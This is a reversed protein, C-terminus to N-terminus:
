KKRNGWIICDKLLYSVSVKNNNLEFTANGLNANDNFTVYGGDVLLMYPKGLEYILNGCYDTRLTDQEGGKHYEARLKRGTVDYTNM